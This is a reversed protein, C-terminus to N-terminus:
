SNKAHLKSLMFIKPHIRSFLYAYERHGAIQCSGSLVGSCWRRLTAKVLSGQLLLPVYLEHLLVINIGDEHGLAQIGSTHKSLHGCLEALTGMLYNHVYM